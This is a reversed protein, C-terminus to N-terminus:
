LYYGTEFNGLRMPQIQDDAGLVKLVEAISFSQMRDLVAALCKLKNLRRRPVLVLNLFVNYITCYDYLTLVDM